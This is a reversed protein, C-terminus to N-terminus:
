LHLQSVFQSAVTSADVHDNVVANVLQVLDATTLAASVKNLTDVVTPTAVNRNVIPIINQAPFVHKPDALAVFHYRAVSPDTTYIDAAQVTGDRLAAITLPGAEDLAKFKLTLGYLKQLGVLGEERTQFEPAAGITVQSEIAKLDGISKLHHAAAFAATVSVSDSDQAPSPQLAQLGAPLASSLAADVDATSSATASPKLYSLLAGNYEPFVNLAGSEMEKFYVERSGIDLKTTVQVGAARLADAYVDALIENEPFNASGVIVAPQGKGSPTTTASAGGAAAKHSSSCSTLLALSAAGILALRRRM